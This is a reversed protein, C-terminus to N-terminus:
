VGFMFDLLMQAAEAVLPTVQQAHNVHTHLALDVDHKRAKKALREMSRLVTGQLFHQPIAM